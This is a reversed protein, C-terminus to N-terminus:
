RRGTAGTDSSSASINFLAISGSIERGADQCMIAFAECKFENPSDSSLTSYPTCQGPHGVKTVFPLLLVDKKGQLDRAYYRSCTSVCRERVRNRIGHGSDARSGRVLVVDPQNEYDTQLRRCREPFMVSPKVPEFISQCSNCAAQWSRRVPGNPYIQLMEIGHLRDQRDVGPKMPSCSGNRGGPRLKSGSAPTCATQLGSRRQVDPNHRSHNRNHM